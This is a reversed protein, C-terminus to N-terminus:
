VQQGDMGLAKEGTGGELYVPGRVGTEEVLTKSQLPDLLVDVPKATIWVADRYDSLRSSTATDDM